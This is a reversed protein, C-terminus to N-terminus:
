INQGKLLNLLMIVNDLLGNHSELEVKFAYLLMQNRKYKQEIEDHNMIQEELQNITRLVFVVGLIQM